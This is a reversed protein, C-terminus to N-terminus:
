DEEQVWKKFWEKFGEVDHYFMCTNCHATCAGYNYMVDRIGSWVDGCIEPVVLETKPKDMLQEENILAEPGDGSVGHNTLRSRSTPTQRDRLLRHRLVIM